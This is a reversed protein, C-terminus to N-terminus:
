VNPLEAKIMRVETYIPLRTIRETRKKNELRFFKGTFFIKM